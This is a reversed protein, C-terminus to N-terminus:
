KSKTENYKKMFALHKKYDDHRNWYDKATEDKYEDMVTIKLDSLYSFTCLVSGGKCSSVLATKEPVFFSKQGMADLALSLLITVM